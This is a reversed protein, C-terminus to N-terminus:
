NRSPNRSDVSGQRRSRSIPGPGDLARGNPRKLTPHSITKLARGALNGLDGAAWFATDDISRGAGQHATWVALVTEIGEGILLGGPSTSPPSRSTPVPRRVACKRPISSNARDPDLIEAKVFTTMDDPDGALWTLHLGGFKGDPRIFAGCMAPGAHIKRPSKHGRDDVDRRPFVPGLSSLASRHAGSPSHSGAASSINSSRRAQISALASKWTRSLRKREAERYEASTKERALRKKEREEFLKKAAEPDVSARPGGLRECATSSIADKSRRLSASLM